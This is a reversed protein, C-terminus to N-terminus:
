HTKPLMKIINKQIMAVVEVETSAIKPIRFEVAPGILQSAEEIALQYDKQLWRLLNLTAEKLAQDLNKAQGFAM